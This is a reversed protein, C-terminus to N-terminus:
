LLATSQAKLPSRTGGDLVALTVILGGAVVKYPASWIRQNV